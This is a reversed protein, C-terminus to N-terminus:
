TEENVVDVLVELGFEQSGPVPDRAIVTYAFNNAVMVSGSIAVTETDAITVFVDYMGIGTEMDTAIPLYGTNDGFAVGALAPTQGTLDGQLAPDLLYIDVSAAAPNPAAHIIRVKAYLAVPRPDDDALIDVALDANFGTALATYVTGAALDLDTPPLLVENADIGDTISVTYTDAPLAIIDTIAPYPVDNLFLAENVYIDVPDTDPSLHGIRLGTPTGVDFIETAGTASIALLTAPSLGGDVNPIAAVTVDLGETLEVSGSDYLPTLDDRGTIRVQYNGPMLEVPDPTSQMFDLQIPASTGVAVNPEAYADVYIDVPLGGPGDIGHLVSVRAMGASPAVDPKTVIAVGLPVTVPGVAVIQTITNAGFDVDTAPFAGELVAGGPQIADVQVSNLGAIVTRRTTTQGYDAGAAITTGNVIVNVPPADPSAHVVQVTGTPTPPADSFIDNNNNDSDCAALAFASLAVFYMKSFKM